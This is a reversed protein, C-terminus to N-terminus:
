MESDPSLRRVSTAYSTHEADKAVRTQERAQKKERQRTEVKTQFQHLAITRHALAKVFVTQFFLKIKGLLRRGNVYSHHEAQDTYKWIGNAVTNKIPQIRHM